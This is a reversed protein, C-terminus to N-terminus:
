LSREQIRSPDAPDTEAGIGDAVAVTLMYGESMGDVGIKDEIQEAADSNSIGSTLGLSRAVIRVTSAIHGADMHVTRFTRPERYRYMNREFVTTIVVLMRIHYPFREFAQPFMTRLSERDTTRGALERLGFPRMTIHYWGPEIGPVDLVILYGESPHRAGGSPSSRRLLTASDTRPTMFGIPGFSLSIIRRLKELDVTAPQPQGAWLTRASGVQFEISPAPLPEERQELYDLKFRDEDPEDAQYSRMRSRDALVGLAESYDVCPYDFSVAHYEAAEHWGFRSWNRRLDVLWTLRSDAGIAAEDVILDRAQLAQIVREWYDPTRDPDDSEALAKVLEAPPQPRNASVLAAAAPASLKYRRRDLLNEAIWRDGTVDSPPIIRVAPNLRVMM